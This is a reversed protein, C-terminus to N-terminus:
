PNCRKCPEFGMNAVEERTGEFVWKNHEAMDAVSSCDPYHFKHTNKNLVYTRVDPNPAEETASAGESAGQVEPALPTASEQALRSEGTAYDIEVGPEVNYCWACFSLGAGRDEVSAAELLVGRAVLEDGEFWPTSRYLVHNGTSEVYAAVRNEYPLMGQVNMTRTGTILNRENDNEGALQYAILHCRNFLYNGEVLDDYRTTHWGSPRVMGISGREAAPMTERGILAFAVGCRGLRDLPAYQEFATRAFDGDSFFPADDNVEVSPVGAYPEVDDMSFDTKVLVAADTTSNAADTVNRTAEREDGRSSVVSSTQASVDTSPGKLMSGSCAALLLVVLLCTLLVFSTKRM